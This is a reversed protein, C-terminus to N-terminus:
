NMSKRLDIMAQQSVELTGQGPRDLDAILFLVSSFGIVLAVAALSRRSNNLGLQYGMMAMCIFALLFLVIWMAAPVRSRVSATVRRAHLVIVENLSTIYLSTMPTREKEAAAVAQAWLRNHLEESKAMAQSLKGPQVAELRADVYERLLNRSETRMPEPLMSTRLYTTGVATAESLMVQRRDEFRSAAYSFTFAQILALLALMAGVMGTVPAPAEKEEGLHKRQYRELRYGFEISLLAVGVALPLITWLPFIDLLGPMEM